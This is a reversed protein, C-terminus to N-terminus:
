APLFCWPSQYERPVIHWHCFHLHQSQYGISEHEGTFDEAAEM